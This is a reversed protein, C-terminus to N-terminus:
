AAPEEEQYERANAVMQEEWGPLAETISNLLVALALTSASGAGLEEVRSPHLFEHRGIFMGQQRQIYYVLAYAGDRPHIGSASHPALLGRSNGGGAAGHVAWLVPVILLGYHTGDGPMYCLEFPPHGDDWRERAVGALTRIHDRDLREFVYGLDEARLAKM